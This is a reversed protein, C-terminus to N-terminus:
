NKKNLKNLTHMYYIKTLDMGMEKKEIGRRDRMVKGEWSERVEEREGDGERKGGERELVRQIWVHTHHWKRPADHSRLAQMGSVSRAERSLWWSDITGWSLTHSGSAGVLMWAPSKAPKVRPLDQVCLQLQQSNMHAVIEGHRVFLSPASM